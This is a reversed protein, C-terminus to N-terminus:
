YTQFTKDTSGQSECVITTNHKVNSGSTYIAHAVQAGDKLDNAKDITLGPIYFPSSKDFWESKNRFM